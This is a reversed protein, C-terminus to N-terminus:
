VRYTLKSTASDVWRTVLFAGECSSPPCTYAALNHLNRAAEFEQPIARNDFTATLRTGGSTTPTSAVPGGEVRAVFRGECFANAYATTGPTLFHALWCNGQTRAPDFQGESIYEGDARASGAVTISTSYGYSEPAWDVRLIDFERQNLEANPPGGRPSYADDAQDTYHVPPGATVPGRSNEGAPPTEGSQSDKTPGESGPFARPSPRSDSGAPDGETTQGGGTEDDGAKENETQGPKDATEIEQLGANTVVVGVGIIAVLAVAIAAVQMPPMLRISDLLRQFFSRPRESRAEISLWLDPPQLVDLEKMRQDLDTM